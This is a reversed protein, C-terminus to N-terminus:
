KPCTERHGMYAAVESNDNVGLLHGDREVFRGKGRTTEHADVAFPMGDLRKWLIDAGCRACTAM